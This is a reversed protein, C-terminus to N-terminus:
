EDIIKMILKNTQGSILDIAIDIKFFFDAM